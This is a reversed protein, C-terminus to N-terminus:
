RVLNLAVSLGQLTEVRQAGGVSVRHIWYGLRGVVPTRALRMELGAEAGRGHDLTVGPLDGSFVRGVQLYAWGLPPIVRAGAQIRAEWFTWRETGAPTVYARVRPGTDIRLWRVLRLGLTAQGEILDRQDSGDSTSLGGQRYLVSLEVLSVAVEGAGELLLGSRSTVTGSRATEEWTPALGFGLSLTPRRQAVAGAPLSLMWTGALVATVGSWRM